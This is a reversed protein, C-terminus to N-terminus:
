SGNASMRGPSAFLDMWGRASTVGAAQAAFWRYNDVTRMTQCLVTLRSKPKGTPVEDTFRLRSSVKLEGDIEGRASENRSRKRM